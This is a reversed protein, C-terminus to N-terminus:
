EIRWDWEVNESRSTPKQKGDTLKKVSTYILDKLVSIPIGDYKNKLTNFANIFSYTFVGNNWEKSEYAYEKGGAASIVFSGNGRDLDYFLSQMLEFSKQVGIQTNIPKATKVGKPITATINENSFKINKLDEENDIEGSHCADLLLLKKRAPIDNLLGQIDQYSLGNEQPKRFNIDHSAFYFNNTDDVLGHGSFSVIVIDNITTEKLKEKLALINNKTANQNTLTDIVLRTKFNEKFLKTLSRVDVDAFRLNMTSDKYKSVGIGIYYLKTPKKASSNTVEFAIPDSEIGEKNKALITINNLGNNLVVEENFLQQNKAEKKVVSVGNIYITLEKIKSVSAIELHINENKSLTPIENKNKLILAPKEISLYDTQETFGNRKLRKLYAEKYIRVTEKDAYGLRKLIVDPRNLFLEYNSLPFTQHKRVFHYERIVSKPVSFKLEDTFFAKITKNNKEHFVLTTIIELKKLDVVDIFGNSYYILMQSKSAALHVATYQLKITKIPKSNEQKWFLLTKNSIGTIYNQKNLYLYPSDRSDYEINYPNNYEFSSVIGKEADIYGSYIKNQKKTNIYLVNNKNLVTLVALNKKSLIANGNLPFIETIYSNTYGNSIRSFSYDKSLIWGTKGKIPTLHRTELNLLFVMKEKKKNHMQPEIVVIAQEQEPNFHLNIILKEKYKTEIQKKWIVKNEKNKIILKIARKRNKNETQKALLSTGNNLYFLYILDQEYTPKKSYSLKDISLNLGEYHNDPYYTFLGTDNFSLQRHVNLIKRSNSISWPILIQQIPKYTHPSHFTKYYIIGEETTFYISVPNWFSNVPFLKNNKIWDLDPTIEDIVLLKFPSKREKDLFTYYDLQNFHKKHIKRLEKERKQYASKLDKNGRLLYIHEGTKLTKYIRENSKKTFHKSSNTIIDIISIKDNYDVLISTKGLSFVGLTKETLSVTNLENTNKDFLYVADLERSTIQKPNPSGYYEIENESEVKFCIFDKNSFLVKEYSNEKIDLQLVKHIAFSNDKLRWIQNESCILWNNTLSNYSFSAREDFPNFDKDVLATENYIGTKIELRGIYIIEERTLFFLIYKSDPDILGKVANSPISFDYLKKRYKATWISFNNDNQFLLYKSSGGVLKDNVKLENLQIITNSVNFLSNKTNELLFDPAKRNYTHTSQAILSFITLYYFISFIVKNRM